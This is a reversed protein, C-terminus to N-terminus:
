LQLLTELAFRAVLPSDDQLLQNLWKAKQMSPGPYALSWALRARVRESRDQLLPEILSDPVGGLLETIIEIARVRQAASRGPNLAAESFAEPRITKVLPFWNERSWSSLPQP